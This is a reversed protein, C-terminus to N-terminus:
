VLTEWTFQSSRPIPKTPPSNANPPLLGNVKLAEELLLIIAMDRNRRVRSSYTELPDILRLDDGKFPIQIGKM